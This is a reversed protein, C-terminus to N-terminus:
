GQQEEPKPMAMFFKSNENDLIKDTDVMRWLNTRTPKVEMDIAKAMESATYRGLPNKKFVDLIALKCKSRIREEHTGTTTWVATEQNFTLALEKEDIDRGTMHLVAEESGRSRRLVLVGDAAGALGLTGSVDEIFDESKGKKTHHIILSSCGITDTADKLETSFQYDEEYQNSNRKKESIPKWKQWVDVIFLVPREM